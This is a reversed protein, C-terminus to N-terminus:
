WQLRRQAREIEETTTVTMILEADSINLRMKPDELSNKCAAPKRSLEVTEEMSFVSVRLNLSSSEKGTGAEKEKPITPVVM